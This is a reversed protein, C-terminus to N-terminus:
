DRPPNISASVRGRTDNDCPRRLSYYMETGVRNKFYENSPRLTTATSLDMSKVQLSENTHPLNLKKARQFLQSLKKLLLNGKGKGKENGNGESEDGLVRNKFKCIFSRSSTTSIRVLGKGDRSLSKYEVGDTPLACMPCDSYTKEDTKENAKEDSPLADTVAVTSARGKSNSRKREKKSQSTTPASCVCYIRSAAVENRWIEIRELMRKGSKPVFTESCVEM